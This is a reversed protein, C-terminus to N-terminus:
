LRIGMVLMDDTQEVDGRWESNVKLLHTKQEELPLHHIKELEKKFNGSLFRTWKEHGIQDIYGDSTMYLMDGEKLQLEKSTFQKDSYHYGIPMKDGRLTELKGDTVYYLSHYAGSFQVHNTEPDIIVLTLDMGDRTESEDDKQHLAGIIRDRLMILIEHAQLPHNTSIIENLIALGLMTMFGGPVGHGTCDSVVIINKNFHRAAWYFDGGVQERPQNILFHNPVLSTLLDSRPLTAKQIRAAYAIGDTIHKKQMAVIKYAKNKQRYQRIVISTFILILVVGIIFSFIVVRQRKLQLEKMQMKRRNREAEYKAIRNQKQLERKLKKVVIKSSEYQERLETLPEDVGD